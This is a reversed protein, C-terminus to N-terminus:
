LYYGNDTQWDINYEPIIFTGDKLQARLVEIDAGKLPKIVALLKYTGKNYVNFQVVTGFTEEIVRYKSGVTYDNINQAM